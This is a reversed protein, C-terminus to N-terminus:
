TRHYQLCFKCLGQPPKRPNQVQIGEVMGGTVIVGRVFSLAGEVGELEILEHALEEIHQYNFEGHFGVEPLANLRYALLGDRVVCIQTRGPTGLLYQILKAPVRYKERLTVGYRGGLVVKHCKLGNPRTHANPCTEINCTRSVLEKVHDGGLNPDTKPLGLRFIPLLGRRRMPHQEHLTEGEVFRHTTERYVM